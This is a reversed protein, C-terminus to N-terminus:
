KLGKLLNFELTIPKDDLNIIKGELNIVNTYPKEIKIKELEYLHKGEVLFIANDLLDPDNKISDYGSLNKSYSVIITAITHNFYVYVFDEGNFNKEICNKIYRPYSDVKNIKIGIMKAVKYFFTRVHVPIFHNYIIYEVSNKYQERFILYKTKYDPFNTKIENDVFRNVRMNMVSSSYTNITSFSESSNILLSIEKVNKPLMEKLNDAFFSENIPMGHEIQSNDIDLYKSEVFDNNNFIIVELFPNVYDNYVVIVNTKSNSRSINLAM